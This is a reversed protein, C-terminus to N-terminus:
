EPRPSPTQSSVPLRIEEGLLQPIDSLNPDWKSPSYTWRRVGYGHTVDTLQRSCTGWTSNLECKQRSPLSHFPLPQTEGWGWRLSERERMRPSPGRLYLLLPPDAKSDPSRRKAPLSQCSEGREAEKQEDTSHFRDWIKKTPQIPTQNCGTYHSPICYISLITATTM